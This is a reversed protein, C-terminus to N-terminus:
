MLELIKNQLDDVEKLKNEIQKKLDIILKPKSSEWKEEVAKKLQEWMDFRNQNLILWDSEPKLIFKKEFIKLDTVKEYVSEVKIMDEKPLEGLIKIGKPLYVLVEQESPEIFPYYTDLYLYEKKDISKYTIVIGGEFRPNIHTFEINKVDEWNINEIIKDM